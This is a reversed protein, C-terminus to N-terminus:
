YQVIYYLLIYYVISYTETSIVVSLDIEIKIRKQMFIISIKIAEICLVQMNQVYIM